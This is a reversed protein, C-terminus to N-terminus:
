CLLALRWVVLGMFAFAVSVSALMPSFALMAVFIALAAAVLWRM